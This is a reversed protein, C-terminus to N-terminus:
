SPNAPRDPSIGCATAFGNAAGPIRRHQEAVSWVRAWDGPVADRACASLREADQAACAVVIAVARDEPDAWDANM